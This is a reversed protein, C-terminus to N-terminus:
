EEESESSSDEVYAAAPAADGIQPAEDEDDGQLAKAFEDEIDFEEEHTEGAEPEPEEAMEADPEPEPRRQTMPSGLKMEDVDEDSAESDEANRIAPSQSNAASRLSIPAADLRQKRQDRFRHRPKAAGDMVIQLGGEDSDEEKEDDEDRRVDGGPGAGPEPPPSAELEVTPQAPPTSAKRPAAKTRVPRHEPSPTGLADIGLPDFPELEPTPTRQRKLQHRWDYPNDSDAAGEQAILANLIGDESQNDSTPSPPSQGFAFETDVQELTFTQTAPDFILACAKSKNQTGKYASKRGNVDNVLEINCENGSFGPKIVSSRITNPLKAEPDVACRLLM